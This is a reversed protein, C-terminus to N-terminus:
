QQEKSSNKTTTNSNSGNKDNHNVNSKIPM